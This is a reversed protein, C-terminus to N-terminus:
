TSRFQTPTKGTYKRFLKTFYGPTPFGVQDAIEQVNMSSDKLLRIAENIRLANLYSLFNMGTHEKFIASLHNESIRVEKAVEYLGISRSYSNKMFEIAMDVTHNLTKEKLIIFDEKRHINELGKEEERIKEILRHLTNELERDDVPKQLYDFVSLRIAKKMYEYDTYGSLIIAHQVPSSSLVELGDKGPLRIDTIVIDPDKEKIMRVAEDGDMASGILTLGLGSWDIMAELEKLVITEDEILLVTLNNM